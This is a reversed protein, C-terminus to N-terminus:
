RPVSRTVAAPGVQLRRILQDRTYPQSRNALQLALRTILGHTKTPPMQVPAIVLWFTLALSLLGPTMRQTPSASLLVTGSVLSGLVFGALAESPSHAGVMVRSVAVFLALGYGVLIVVPRLDAQHRAALAALAIPWIAAALMSHGSIGTFDLSAIGVGWGLFAIKSAVTIAVASLLCALWIMATRRERDVAFWLGLTLMCPLIVEAQGLRSLLPWLTLEIVIEERRRNGHRPLYLMGIASSTCGTSRAFGGPTTTPTQDALYLRLAVSKGHGAVTVEGAVRGSFGLCHIATCIGGAHPSGKAAESLSEQEAAAATRGERRGPSKCVSMPM